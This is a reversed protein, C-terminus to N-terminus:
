ALHKTPLTSLSLRIGFPVATQTIKNRLVIPLLLLPLSTRLRRMFRWFPSVMEEFQGEILAVGKKCKHGHLTSIVSMM